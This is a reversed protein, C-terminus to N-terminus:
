QPLTGIASPMEGLDIKVDVFDVDEERSRSKAVGGGARRQSLGAAADCSHRRIERGAKKARFYWEKRITAGCAESKCDTRAAKLGLGFCHLSLLSKTGTADYADLTPTRIFGGRSRM